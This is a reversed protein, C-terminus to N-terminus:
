VKSQLEFNCVRLYHRVMVNANSFKADGCSFSIMLCFCFEQFLLLFAQQLFLFYEPVDFM